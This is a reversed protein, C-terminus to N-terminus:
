IGLAETIRGCLVDASKYLDNHNEHVLDMVDDISAYWVGNPNIVRALREGAVEENTRPCGLGSNCMNECSIWSFIAGRFMMASMGFCLKRYNICHGEDKLDVAVTHWSRTHYFEQCACATLRVRYGAKELSVVNRAVVKCANELDRVDIGCHVSMNVLLKLVKNPKRIKKARDFCLPDGNLYKDMRFQGCVFSPEKERVKLTGCKLNGTFARVEKVFKTDSSGGVIQTTLEDVSSFGYFDKDPHEKCIGGEYLFSTPSYTPTRTKLVAYMEPLSKFYEIHEKGEDIRVSM